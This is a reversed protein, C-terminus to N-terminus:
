HTRHQARPYPHFIDRWHLQFTNAVQDPDTIRDGNVLLYEFRERQGGRLRQVM